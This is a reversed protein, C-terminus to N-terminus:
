SPENDMWAFTRITSFSVEEDYDTHVTRCARQRRSSPSLWSWRVLPHTRCCRSEVEGPSHALIRAM